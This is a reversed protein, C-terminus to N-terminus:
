EDYFLGAGSAYLAAREGSTLVRSYFMTPGIKGDFYHGANSGARGITFLGSGDQTGGAWVADVPTGGNVQISLTNADPDHWAVVFYWTGTSINATDVVGSSVGNGVRFVIDNSFPEGITYERAQDTGVASWKALAQWLAGIADTNLWIAITFPSDAGLSLSVNDVHSLYETNAAVFDAAKGAPFNPPGTVSAFGVTNNDTLTNGGVLDARDGSEEGLPWYSVLGSTLTAHGGFPGSAGGVVCECRSNTTLSPEAASCVTASQTTVPCVAQASAIVPLLLGLALIWKKM